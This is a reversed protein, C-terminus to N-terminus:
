ACGRQNGSWCSLDKLKLELVKHFEGAYLNGSPDRSKGEGSPLGDKWMGEYSGGDKFTVLNFGDKVGQSM